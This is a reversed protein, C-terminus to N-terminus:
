CGWLYNKWGFGDWCRIRPARFTIDGLACVKIRLGGRGPRSTGCLSRLGNSRSYQNNRSVPNLVAIFPQSLRMLLVTGFLWSWIYCEFLEKCYFMHFFGSLYSFQPSYCHCSTSRPWFLIYFNMNLSWWLSGQTQWLHDAKSEHMRKGHIIIQFCIIDDYMYFSRKYKDSWRRTLQKYKSIWIRIHRSPVNTIMRPKKASAKEAPGPHLRGESTKKGGLIEVWSHM